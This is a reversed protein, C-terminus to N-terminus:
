ETWTNHNLRANQSEKCIKALNKCTVSLSIGFCGQWVYGLSGLGLVGCSKIKSGEKARFRGNNTKERNMYAQQKHECGKEWPGFLTSVGFFFGNGMMERDWMRNHKGQSDCLINNWLVGYSKLQQKWPRYLTYRWYCNNYIFFESAIFSHM